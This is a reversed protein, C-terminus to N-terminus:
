RSRSSTSRTACGRWTAARRTTSSACARIAIWIAPSTASGATSSSSSARTSRSAPSPASASCWRRSSTEAAAPASSSSARLVPPPLSRRQHRRIQPASRLRSRRQVGDARHRCVFRHRPAARARDLEPPLTTSFGWGSPRMTQAPDGIVRIRSFPNWREVIPRAEYNGKVWVLRLWPHDRRAAVTNAITALVLPSSAGALRIGEPQLRFGRAARQLLQTAEPKLRFVTAAALVAGGRVRCDGGDRRHGDAWGHGRAAARAARM